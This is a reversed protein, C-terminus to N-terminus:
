GQRKGPPSMPNNYNLKQNETLIQSKMTLHKDLRSVTANKSTDHQASFINIFNNYDSVRCRSVALAALNCGATDLTIKTHRHNM